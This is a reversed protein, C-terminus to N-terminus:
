TVSQIQPILAYADVTLPMTTTNGIEDTARLTMNYNGPTAFPGFVIEQSSISFGAGSSSFDDDFIGNQNTDTTLDPDISISATSLDTLIDTLKYSRSSYIPLRIRTPLDVIPDGDDSTVQPAFLIVGARDTKKDTLNQLRAYYYGNTYPLNVEYRDSKNGLDYTIYTAGGTLSIDRGSTHNRLIAGADSAYLQMGPLIPVGILDDSYSYRSHDEKGILYLKGRAMNIETIEAFQYGM